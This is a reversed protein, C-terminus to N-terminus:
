GDRGTEVGQWFTEDAANISSMNTAEASNITAVYTTYASLLAGAASALAAGASSLSSEYAISASVVAAQLTYWLVLNRSIADPKPKLALTYTAQAAEVSSDLTAKATQVAFHYASVALNWSGVAVHLENAAGSESTNFVNTAQATSFALQACLPATITDPNSCRDDHTQPKPTSSMLGDIFSGFGKTIPLAKNPDKDLDVVFRVSSQLNSLVLDAHSPASKPTATSAAQTQGTTEETTAETAM